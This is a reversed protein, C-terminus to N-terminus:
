ELPLLLAKTITSRPDVSDSCLNGLALLANARVAAPQADSVLKALAEVIGGDRLTQGLAAGEAGFVDGVLMALQEVADARVEADDSSLAKQLDPLPVGEIPTPASM